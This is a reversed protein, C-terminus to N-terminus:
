NMVGFQITKPNTQNEKPTKPTPEPNLCRHEPETPETQISSSFRSQTYPHTVPITFVSGKNHFKLTGQLQEIQKVYQTLVEIM